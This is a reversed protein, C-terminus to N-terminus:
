IAFNTTLNELIQYRILLKGARKSMKTYRTDISERWAAKSDIVESVTLGRSNGELDEHLHM